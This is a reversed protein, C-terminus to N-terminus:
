LLNEGGSTATPLVWYISNERTLFRWDVLLRRLTAFDPHFRKLCESVEKETYRANPDFEKALRKLVVMLKNVKVPIEKLRGDEFFRQLVLREFDSSEPDDEMAKNAKHAVEKLLAFVSEQRLSYFHSTGEQRMNVMGRGKLMALHSSITPEKLALASAMEKVTYEREALLGLIRLRTKDAMVKLFDVLAEFEQESTAKEISETGINESM